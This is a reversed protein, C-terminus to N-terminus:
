DGEPNDMVAKAKRAEEFAQDSINYGIIEGIKTLIDDTSYKMQSLMEDHLNFDETKCEISQFSEIQVRLETATRLMDALKENITLTFYM